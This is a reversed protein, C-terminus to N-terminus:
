PGRISLSIKTMAGGSVPVAKTDINSCPIRVPKEIAFAAFKQV